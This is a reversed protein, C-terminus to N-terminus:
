ILTITATPCRISLHQQLKALDAVVNDGAPLPSPKTTTDPKSM